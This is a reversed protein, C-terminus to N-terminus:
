KMYQANGINIPKAEFMNYKNTDIGMKITEMKAIILNIFHNNLYFILM